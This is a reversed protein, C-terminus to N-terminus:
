DLSSGASAVIGVRRLATAIAGAAVSKKEYSQNYDSIWISVGGGYHKRAYDHKCLWRAFGSTGPTIVVWAFGCMGDPVEWQEVVTNDLTNSHQVFMPRPTHAEGAARGAAMASAYVASYVADRYKPSLKAM